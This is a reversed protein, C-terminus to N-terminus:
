DESKKANCEDLMEQISPLCKGCKHGIYINKQVDEITKCNNSLIIKKLKKDGIGRCICILM